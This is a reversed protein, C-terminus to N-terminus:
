KNIDEISDSIYKSLEKARKKWRELLTLTEKTESEALTAQKGYKKLLYGFDKEMQDGASLLDRQAIVQRNRRKRGRVQSMRWGVVYGGLLLAIISLFFVAQSVEIGALVLFPRARVTFPATRVPLSLAGREDRAVAEVMYQGKQLPHEIHANWVGNEDPAITTTAVTEGNIRRLTVLVSAGPMVTGAITLEGEDVFIDRPIASITPSVIPVITLDVSAETRNGAQDIAFIKVVHEGPPLPQLAQESETQIEEGADIRMRYARLGSLQDASAYSLKPNPVDSIAGQPVLVEFPTPPLTDIAIRYHTTESWGVNNRFRVHLYWIGDKTVRFLKNDFLGESKSPNTQPDQNLATAVASVDSPLNWKAIFTSLINYWDSSNPYLPIEVKPADPNKEAPTPERTIQTPKEELPATNAISIGHMATLVNTGAGDSAAVAGDVFQFDATGIKKIKFTVRVIPLSQGVFGNTSGGTFVIRGTENSYSPGEVWFNFVSDNTDVGVAEVLDIPYQLSAEAANIGANETNITLTLTVNEGVKASSKDLLADLTAASVHSGILVGALVLPAYLYTLRM